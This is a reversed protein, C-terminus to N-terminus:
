RRMTFGRKNEPIDYGIGMEPTNKVVTMEYLDPPNDHKKVDFIFSDVERAHRPRTLIIDGDTIPTPSVVFMKAFVDGSEVYPEFNVVAKGWFQVRFDHVHYNDKTRESLKRLEAMVEDPDAEPTYIPTKKSSDETM